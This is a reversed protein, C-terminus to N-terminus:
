THISPHIDIYNTMIQQEVRLCAPYIVGLWGALGAGLWRYVYLVYLVCLPFINM